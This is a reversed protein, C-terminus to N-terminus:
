EEDETLANDLLSIMVSEPDYLGSRAAGEPFIDERAHDAKAILVDIIREEITGRFIPWYTVCSRQQGSRFVRAEAQAIEAPVWALEGMITLRARTLDIGVSAVAITGVFVDSQEQQFDLIAAQRKKEPDEGTVLSVKLGIKRLAEATEKAVDRHWTWVVCPEGASRVLDVVHPIKAWGVYRRLALVQVLQAASAKVLEGLSVVDGLAERVDTALRKYEEDGTGDFTLPLLERQLPPVESSVEEWRKRIMVSALRAELWERAEPSIPESLDWGHPGKRLGLRLAMDRWSGIAGPVTAQLIGYLDMVHRLIPTGTLAIRKKCLNAIAAAASTRKAHGHTYYHAEDWIGFDLRTGLWESWRAALIEPNMLNIGPKRLELKAENFTLARGKVIRVPYDTGFVLAIEKQWVPFTVKPAVILGKQDRTSDKVAYLSTRTKGTGMSLALLSGDRERAFTACEVQYGRLNEPEVESVETEDLPPGLKSQLEQPLVSALSRHICRRGQFTAFGGPENEPRLDPPCLRWDSIRKM